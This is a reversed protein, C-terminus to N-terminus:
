EGEQSAPADPEAASAAILADAEPKWAVVRKGAAVIGGNAAAVKDIGASGAVPYTYPFGAPEIRRSYNDTMVIQVLSLRRMDALPAIAIPSGGVVGLIIPSGTGM